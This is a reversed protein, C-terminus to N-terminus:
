EDTGFCGLHGQTPSHIFISHDMWGMSYEEGRFLFLGVLWSFVRLFKVHMDSLSLPWDSFTVYHINGMLSM